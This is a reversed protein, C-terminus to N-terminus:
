NAKASQENRAVIRTAVDTPTEEMEVKKPESGEAMKTVCLVNGLLIIVWAPPVGNVFYQECALEWGSSLLMYQDPSLRPVKDRFMSLLFRDLSVNGQAIASAVVERFKAVKASSLSALGKGNFQGTVPKENSSVPSPQESSSNTEATRETNPSLDEISPTRSKKPPSPLSAVIEQLKAAAQERTVGEDPNGLEVIGRGPVVSIWPGDDVGKKKRRFPVPGAM